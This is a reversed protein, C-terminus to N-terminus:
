SCFDKMLDHLILYCYKVVEHNDDSPEFEGHFLMCRVQYIIEILAAFIMITDDSIVVEGLDVGRVKAKLKGSKTKADSIILDIYGNEQDKLSYDILASSFTLPKRLKSPMINARSLSFVLLELNSSLSQHDKSPSGQFINKFKSYLVNQHSTDKKLNDVHDRDNSFKAYHFNYWSNCALWLNLFPSFYDVRAKSFWEKKFDRDHTM